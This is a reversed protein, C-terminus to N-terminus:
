ASRSVDLVPVDAITALEDSLADGLMDMGAVTGIGLGEVTGALLVLDPRTERVIADLTLPTLVERYDVNEIIGQKVAHPEERPDLTVIKLRPNKLLQRLVETGIRGAGVVLITAPQENM